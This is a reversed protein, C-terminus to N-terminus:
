KWSFATDLGETGMRTPRREIGQIIVHHLTGPSDLRAKRPM